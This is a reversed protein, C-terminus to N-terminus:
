FTFGLALSQVGCPNGNRECWWFFYLEQANGNLRKSVGSLKKIKHNPTIQGVTVSYMCSWSHLLHKSLPFDRKHAVIHTLSFKPRNVLDVVWHNACSAGSGVRTLYQQNLSIFVNPATFIGHKNEDDSTLPICGTNNFRYRKAAPQWVREWAGTSFLFCAVFSGRKRWFIQTWSM